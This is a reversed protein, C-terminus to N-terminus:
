QDGFAVVWCNAADVFTGSEIHRITVGSASAVSCDTDTNDIATSPQASVVMAGPASTFAVTGNVTYIGVGGDTVSSCKGSM